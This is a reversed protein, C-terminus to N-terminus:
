MTGRQPKRRRPTMAAEEHIHGLADFSQLESAKGISNVM